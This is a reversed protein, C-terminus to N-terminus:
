LAPFESDMKKLENLHEKANRLFKLGRLFKWYPVGNKNNYASIKYLMSWHHLIVKWATFLSTSNGYIHQIGAGSGNFELITFNGGELLDKVSACKIDYRGYFLKGSHLSLNDFVKLFTQDPIVPIGMMKGGQSRNTADSLRFEEGAALVTKLNKSHRTRMKEKNVRPDDFAELLEAITSRGNGTIAAPDKKAMGSITGKQSAPHRYYFVCVEAPYDSFEQILYKVRIFEHYKRLDEPTKIKRFMFGSMGIDPKAAFPYTINNRRIENEVKDMADGPSVYITKPYSGPPLQNYMEEKGEGDMGGFTLTPNSATFFWASGSRISNWLWVPFIPIYKIHFHWSEWHTLKYLFNGSGTRM